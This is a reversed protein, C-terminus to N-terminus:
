RHQSGGAGPWKCASALKDRVRSIGRLLFTGDLLNRRGELVRIQFAGDDPLSRLFRVVDGGYAVGNGTRSATWRQEVAPQGNIQYAVVLSSGSLRPHSFGRQTLALETRGGRCSVSLVSSPRDPKSPSSTNAVVLPSYDVPSYTEAVTWHDTAVPGNVPSQTMGRSQRDLCDSREADDEQLCAQSGALSDDSRQAAAPLGVSTLMLALPIAAPKM